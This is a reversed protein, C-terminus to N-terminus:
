SMTHLSGQLKSVVGVCGDIVREDQIICVCVFDGFLAYHCEEQEHIQNVRERSVLKDPLPMRIIDTSM